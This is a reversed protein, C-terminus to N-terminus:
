KSISQHQGARHEQHNIEQHDNREQHVDDDYGVRDQVRTEPREHQDPVDGVVNRVVSQVVDVGSGVLAAPEVFELFVM